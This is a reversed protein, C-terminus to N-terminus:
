GRSFDGCAFCAAILRVGEGNNGYHYGLTFIPLCVKILRKRQRDDPNNQSPRILSLMM